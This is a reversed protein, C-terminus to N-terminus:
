RERLASCRRAIAAWAEGCIRARSTTASFCREISREGGHEGVPALHLCPVEVHDVLGPDIHGLAAGLAHHEGHRGPM